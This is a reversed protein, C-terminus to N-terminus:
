DEGAVERFIADMEEKSLDHLEVEEHYPVGNKIGEQIRSPGDLYYGVYDYDTPAAQRIMEM